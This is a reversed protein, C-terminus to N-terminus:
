VAKQTSTKCRQIRALLKDIDPQEFVMFLQHQDFCGDRSTQEFDMSFSNGTAMALDIISFQDRGKEIAIAGDIDQYIYDNGWTEMKIQLSEEIYPQFKYFLTNGPMALFQERNVIKMDCDGAERKRPFHPGGQRM